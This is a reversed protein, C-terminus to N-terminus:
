AALASEIEAADIRVGELKLQRDRRGLLLLPGGPSQMALDGSLFARQGGFAPLPQFRRATLAPDDLYSDALGIGSIALEGPFGDPVAHGAADVVAVAVGPLPNGIDTRAGLPPAIDAWTADATVESSGYINILRCGPVAHLFAQALSTDLPEGSCACLRLSQLGAVNGHALLARLLTPVLVLRTVNYRGLLASLAVPDTASDDPAIVLPIGACLPGLMEAYSDVFGPSTKLCAVDDPLPPFTSAYWALRNILAHQTCVVGKPTGTSGSTFAIFAADPAHRAVTTASRYANAARTEDSTTDSQAPPQGHAAPPREHIGPPHLVPLTRHAPIGTDPMAVLIDPDAAALIQRQRQEPHAPDLLMMVGGAKLCALVAVALEVSRPLWIAVRCGTTFAPHDNLQKALLDVKALLATYSLTHGNAILATADPTHRAQQTFLDIVRSVPLRAPEARTIVAKAAATVPAGPAVVPVGSPPAVPTVLHTGPTAATLARNVDHEWSRALTQAFGAPFHSRRCELVASFTDHEAIELVLDTRPVPLPVPTLTIGPAAFPPLMNFMIQTLPARGPQRQPQAADMIQRLGLGAHAMDTSVAAQIHRLADIFPADPAPDCRLPILDSLCGALGATGPRDRHAITTAIVLENNLTLRQLLRVFVTLLFFWPTTKLQRCLTRLAQAKDPEITVCFRDCAPEDPSPPTHALMVPPAFREPAGELRTRWYARLTDTQSAPRQRELASVQRPQMPSDDPLDGGQLLTSLEHALVQLGFWDCVAHHMLWVLGTCRGSAELVPHIHWNHDHMLGPSSTDLLATLATPDPTTIAPAMVVTAAPQVNAVLQDDRTEYVTRLTEHREVLAQLAQTIRTLAYPQEFRVWVGLGNVRRDGDVCEQLWLREVASQVPWFPPPDNAASGNEAPTKALLGKKQLLAKLAHHDQASLRKM